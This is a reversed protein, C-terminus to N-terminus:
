YMEGKTKKRALNIYMHTTPSLGPKSEMRTNKTYLLQKRPVSRRPNFLRGYM